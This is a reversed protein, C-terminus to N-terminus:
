GGTTIVMYADHWDQNDGDVKGERNSAWNKLVSGWNVLLIDQILTSTIGEVHGDPFAINFTPNEHGRATHVATAWPFVPQDIVLAKDNEMRSFTQFAVDWQKWKDYYAGWANFFYGTRIMNSWNDWTGWPVTQGTTRNTTYEELVFWSNMQAPCYFYQPDPICGASYAIGAGRYRQQLTVPDLDGVKGTHFMAEMSIYFGNVYPQGGKMSMRYPPYKDDNMHGYLLLGKATSNMNSACVVQKAIDKAVNLSPALISILLSIIAIVVLLEVLTFGRRTM